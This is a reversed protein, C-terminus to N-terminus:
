SIDNSLATIITSYRYCFVGTVLVSNCKCLYVESNNYMRSVEVFLM